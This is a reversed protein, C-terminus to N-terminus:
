KEGVEEVWQLILTDELEASVGCIDDALTELREHEEIDTEHGGHDVIQRLDQGLGFADAALRDARRVLEVYAPSKSIM